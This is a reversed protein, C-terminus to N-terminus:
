ITSWPALSRNQGWCLTCFLARGNTLLRRPFWFFNTPDLDLVLAVNQDETHRFSNQLWGTIWSVSFQYRMCSGYEIPKLRSRTKTLSDKSLASQHLKTEPKFYLQSDERESSKKMFIFHNILTFRFHSLIFHLSSRFLISLHSRNSTLSVSDIWWKEVTGEHWESKGWRSSEFVNQNMTLVHWQQEHTPEYFTFDLPLPEVFQFIKLNEIMILWMWWLPLSTRTLIDLRNLQSYTCEFLRPWKM